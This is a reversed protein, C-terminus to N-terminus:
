RLTILIREDASICERMNTNQRSIAPTLLEVLEQFTRKTMRYMSQFREDNLILEQAAVFLRCNINREIYPHRWFRKRRRRLRLYMYFAIDEEESSSM